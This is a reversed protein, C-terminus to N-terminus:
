YVMAILEPYARVADKDRYTGVIQMYRSELSEKDEPAAMQKAYACYALEIFDRFKEQSTKSPELASLKKIFTKALEM